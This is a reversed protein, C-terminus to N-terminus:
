DASRSHRHGLLLDQQERVFLRRGWGQANGPRISGGCPRAIPWASRPRRCVFCRDRAQRPTSTSSQRRTRRSRRRSVCATQRGAPSNERSKGSFETPSRSPGQIQFIRSYFRSTDLVVIGKQPCGGEVLGSYSSVGRAGARVAGSPNEHELPPPEALALVDAVRYGISRPGLQIAKDRLHRRISDESVGRLEAAEKARVIRRREIATLNDPNTSNM